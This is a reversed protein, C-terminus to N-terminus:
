VQTAFVKVATTFAVRESIHFVFGPNFYIKKYQALYNFKCNFKGQMNLM